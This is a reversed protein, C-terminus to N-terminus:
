SQDPHIVLMGSKNDYTYRESHDSRVIVLTVVFVIVISQHAALGGRSFGALGHGWDLNTREQEPYRHQLERIM